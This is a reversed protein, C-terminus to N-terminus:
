DHNKLLTQRKAELILLIFQTNGYLYRRWLRRPEQLVRYFWEMGASQVWVPARRVLGAVVDFSGGVGMCFPVDLEPVWRQLWFEKQPTGFGVFLIDAHSNRIQEAIQPEEEPRFYGNRYGAVQLTPYTARFTDVTKAVVEEKAGFFFIRYGKQASLAVLSDMLNTGNVREPLPTGLFRSAWVISMGDASLLDCTCLAQLLQKDTQIQVVKAANIFGHRCIRRTAICDEVYVMTEAISADDVPCGAISVRNFQRAM